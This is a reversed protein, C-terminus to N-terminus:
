CKKNFNLHKIGTSRIKNSENNEKKFDNPM